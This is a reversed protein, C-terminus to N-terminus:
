TVAPQMLADIDAKRIRSIRPSVRTAPLKGATIWKRITVTCVQLLEAAQAVNLYEQEM